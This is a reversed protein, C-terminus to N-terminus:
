LVYPCLDIVPVTFEVTEGAGPLPVGAAFEVMTITPGLRLWAIGDEDVQEMVGRVTVAALPDDGALGAEGGAASWAGIEDPIDIEVCHHGPAPETGDQWRAWATGMPSTFRVLGGPADLVEAIEIMMAASGTGTGRQVRVPRQGAPDYASGNDTNTM